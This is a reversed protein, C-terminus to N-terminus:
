RNIINIIENAIIVIYACKWILTEDEDCARKFKKLAEKQKTSLKQFDLGKETEM